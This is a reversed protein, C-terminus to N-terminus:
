SLLKSLVPINKVMAIAKTGLAMINSMMETKPANNKVANEVVGLIKNFTNESDADGPALAKIDDSSFGKLANLISQNDGGLLDGATQKLNDMFSTM